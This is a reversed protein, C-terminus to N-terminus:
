AEGKMAKEMAKKQSGLRGGRENRRMRVLEAEEEEDAVLPVKEFVFMRAARDEGKWGSEMAGLTRV